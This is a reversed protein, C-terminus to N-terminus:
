KIRRLTQQRCHSILSKKVGEVKYSVEGEYPWKDYYVKVIKCKIVEGYNCWEVIDGKNYQQITKFPNDPFVMLSDGM